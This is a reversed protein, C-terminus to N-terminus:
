PPEKELEPVESFWPVLKTKVERKGKRPSTLDVQAYGPGKRTQRRGPLNIQLM